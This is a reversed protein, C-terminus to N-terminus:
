IKNLKREINNFALNAIIMLVLTFSSIGILIFVGPVILMLSYFTIVTALMFLVHLPHSIAITVAHRIVMLLRVDFHVYVPIIFLSTVLFLLSITILIAILIISIMGTFNSILDFYYYLSFALLVIWWGLINAKIFSEKYMQKFTTFVPFDTNGRIWKRSIGFMTFTAPFIGCIVLGVLCFVVWILQLYLLRTIWNMVQMLKGDINFM